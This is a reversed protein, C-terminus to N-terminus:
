YYSHKHRQCWRYLLYCNPLTLQFCRTFWLDPKLEPLSTKQRVALILLRTLTCHWIVSICYTIFFTQARLHWSNQSCVVKWFSGSRMLCKLLIYLCQEALAASARCGGERHHLWLIGSNKKSWPMQFSKCWPAASVTTPKTWRWGQNSVPQLYCKSLPWLTIILFLVTFPRNFTM